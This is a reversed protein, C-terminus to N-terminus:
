VDAFHARAGDREIHEADVWAIDVKARHAIGGHALAEVLSKYSDKLEIYKGVVALRTTATPSKVRHVVDEWRSLDIPREALGLSKVIIQDLGERHFVLPVEYITDVDKATIVAEEEVDCFLAIKSKLGPPLYRDTRCLLIDPQIGIARLEKVSHQTAKTKLEAAAQIFPVLTLHVYIVHDKGVDKKFQRIAELFPLSEIDGVTGGIAGIVVDVGAPVKRISANIQDAIHPIFHATRDLYDGRREKEIVTGYVKGTTVNNDRSMRASTFREYHGLDLDTEGGDDTVYVEGHQYPSMTGADVNIYPDMKQLTVRFGRAELLCGISAAALGKGLSSVVGGTVFVYKTPVSLRREARIPHAGRGTGGGEPRDGDPAVPARGPAPARARCGAGGAAGPAAPRRRAGAPCGARRRRSRDRAAAARAVRPPLSRPVPGGPRRRRPRAGLGCGAGADGGALRVRPGRELRRAARGRHRSGREGGPAGGRARGAVARAAGRGGGRGRARGRGRPGRPRAGDGARPRGPGPPGHRPPSRGTWGDPRGARRAALRRAPGHGGPRRGSGARGPGAAARRPPPRRVARRVGPAGDRAPCSPGHDARAHLGAPRRVAGRPVGADPGGRVLPSPPGPAPPRPSGG